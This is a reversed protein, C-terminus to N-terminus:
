TPLAESLPIAMRRRLLRNEIRRLLLYTDLYCLTYTVYSDWEEFIHLRRTPGIYWLYLFLESFLFSDRIKTNHFFYHGCHIELTSIDRFVTCRNRSKKRHDALFNKKM